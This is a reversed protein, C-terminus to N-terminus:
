AEPPPLMDDMQAPRARGIRVARMGGVQGLKAAGVFAGGPGEVRVSDVTVGPLAVVQGVHFGEVLGLMLTQRHLVAQLSCPADLVAAAMAGTWAADAPRAVVADPKPARRPVALMMAGQRDPLGLDLSLRIVRFPGDPLALAAARPNAFRGLVGVDALGLAECDARLGALLHLVFPEAMALDATTPDRRSAPQPSLNGVTQMEILAGRMDSCLALVGEPGAGAGLMVLLMEAGITPTLEDLTAETTEVGLVVVPLGAARDAARVVTQRLVRAPVAAEARPAPAQRVMRRLAANVAAGAMASQVGDM